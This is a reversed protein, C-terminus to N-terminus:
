FYNGYKTRVVGGSVIPAGDNPFIDNALAETQEVLPKAAEHIAELDSLDATTSPSQAAAYLNSPIAPRISRPQAYQPVTYYRAQSYVSAPGYYYYPYSLAPAVLALVFVAPFQFIFM